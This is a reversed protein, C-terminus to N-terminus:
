IVGSDRMIGQAIPTKLTSRFFFHANVTNSALFTRCAAYTSGVKLKHFRGMVDSSSSTMIQSETGATFANSVPVWQIPLGSVSYSLMSALYAILAIREM